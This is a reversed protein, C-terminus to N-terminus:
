EREEEMNVGIESGCWSGNGKRISKWEVEASTGTGASIGTGMSIGTGTSIGTEVRVGM